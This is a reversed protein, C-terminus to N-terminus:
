YIGSFVQKTAKDKLNLRQKSKSAQVETLLIAIEADVYSFFICIVINLMTILM